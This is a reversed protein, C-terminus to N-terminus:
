LLVVLTVAADIATLRRVEDGLEFPAIGGRTVGVTRREGLHRATLVERLPRPPRPAGDRGGHLRHAVARRPARREGPGRLPRRAAAGRRPAPGQRCRPQRRLGQALPR